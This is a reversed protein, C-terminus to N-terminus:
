TEDLSETDSNQPPNLIAELKKKLSELEAIMAKQESLTLETSRIQQIRTVETDKLRQYRKKLCEKRELITNYEEISVKLEIYHAIFADRQEATPTDDNSSDEATESERPKSFTDVYEDTALELEKINKLLEDLEDDCEIIKGHAKEIAKFGIAIVGRLKKLHRENDSYSRNDDSAPDHLGGEVPSIRPSANSDENSM